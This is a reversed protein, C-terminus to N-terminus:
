KLYFFSNLVDVCYFWKADDYGAGAGNVSLGQTSIIDSVHLSHFRGMWLCIGEPSLLLPPPWGVMHDARWLEVGRV